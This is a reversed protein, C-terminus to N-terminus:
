RPISFTPTGAAYPAIVAPCYVVYINEGDAYWGDERFAEALLQEVNQFFGPLDGASVIQEYIAPFLRDQWDAGMLSGPDIRLGSAADYVFGGAYIGPHAAGSVYSYGQATLSVIQDDHYFLAIDITQEASLDPDEARLAGQQDLWAASEREAFATLDDAVRRAAEPSFVDYVAQPVSMEFSAYSQGAEDQLAYGFGLPLEGPDLGGDEVAPDGDPVDDGSVVAQEGGACAPLLLIALLLTAFAYKRM